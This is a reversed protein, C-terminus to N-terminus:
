SCREVRRKARIAHILHGGFLGLPPESLGSRRPPREVELRSLIAHHALRATVFPGPLVSRGASRGASFRRVYRHM